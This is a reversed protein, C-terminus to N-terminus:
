RNSVLLADRGRRLEVVIGDRNRFCSSLLPEPVACPTTRHTAPAFSAAGPITLM